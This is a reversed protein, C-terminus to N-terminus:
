FVGLYTLEGTKLGRNNVVCMLKLFIDFVLIIIFFHSEFCSMLDHLCCLYIWFYLILDYIM